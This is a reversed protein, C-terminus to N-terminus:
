EEMMLQSEHKHTPPPGEGTVLTCKPFALDFEQSIDFVLLRGQLLPGTGFGSDILFLLQNKEDVRVCWPTLPECEGAGRWEGLFDGTSANFVQTRNNGRDAVFLRDFRAQYALSHPSSFQSPGPGTSNLGVSWELRLDRNLKVVRDNVGGDGDSIYINGNSDSTIDAVSGFQLPYLNHSCVGPSGLLALRRGSPDFAQVTCNQSDTIWIWPSSGQKQMIHLGHGAGVVRSANVGGWTRLLNGAKDYVLIPPVAAGRQLVYIEQSTDDFAAASVGTIDASLPQKPWSPDLQYQLAAVQVALAALARLM